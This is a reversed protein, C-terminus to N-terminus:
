VRWLKLGTADDMTREIPEAAVFIVFELTAAAVARFLHGGQAAGTPNSVVAHIHVFPKGEVRGVSGSASAVEVEGEVRVRDYDRRSLNYFGLEVESAAGIGSLWGGAVGERAALAELSPHVEEGTELRVFIRNGERRSNM